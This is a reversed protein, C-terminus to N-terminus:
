GMWYSKPPQDKAPGCVPCRPLKLVEHSRAQLTMFNISFLSGYTEPPVLLTLHKVVELAVFEGLIAPFQSLYGYSATRGEHERVYKEFAVYEDYADLNSKLRLRYCEYCCTERPVIFPGVTGEISNLSSCVLWPINEDLCIQNVWDFIAMRPEDMAVVIVDQGKVIQLISDKSQLGDNLQRFAISPNINGLVSALVGDTSERVDTATYNHNPFPPSLQRDAVGTIYGVGAKALSMLVTVGIAGLGLIAVKSNKLRAQCAHPEATFHSFFLIQPGYYSLEERSFMSPPETSADKLLGGNNLCELITLIEDETAVEKCKEILQSLTFSGDLYPLLHPLLESVTRGRLIYITDDGARLQYANNEMPIQDFYPPIRPRVPLHHYM